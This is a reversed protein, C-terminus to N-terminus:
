WKYKYVQVSGKNISTLKRKWRRREHLMGWETQNRVTGRKTSIQMRKSKTVRVVEEDHMMDVTVPVRVQSRHLLVAHSNEISPPQSAGRPVRSLGTMVESPKILRYVGAEHGNKELYEVITKVDMMQSVIFLNVNNEKRLHGKFGEESVVNKVSAQGWVSLEDMNIALKSDFESEKFFHSMIQSLNQEFHPQSTRSPCAGCQSVQLRVPPHLDTGM